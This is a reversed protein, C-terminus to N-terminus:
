HTTEPTSEYLFYINEDDLTILGSQPDDLHELPEVPSVLRPLHVSGDALYDALSRISALSLYISVDKVTYKYSYYLLVDPHLLFSEGAFNLTSYFYLPDYQNKPITGEVMM